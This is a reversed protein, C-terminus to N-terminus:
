RYLEAFVPVPVVHGAEVLLGPMRNRTLKEARVRRAASPVRERLAPSPSFRM